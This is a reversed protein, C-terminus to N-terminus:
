YFGYFSGVIYICVAPFSFTLVWLVLSRLIDLVDVYNISCWCCHQKVKKGCKYCFLTGCRCTVYNCGSVREVCHHCAPCRQWKKKEALVGVAIDSSNRLERAEECRFGAHWVAQCSFCFLKKCKPCKSRKVTGGCENLILVSCDGYPCYCRDIELVASECLLECWKDFVQSSIFPRCSVDDLYNDCNLAPCIIRSVGYDLKADIYKTICDLCYPHACKKQNKFLKNSSVPEVCIECTIITVSETIIEEPSCEESEKCRRQAFNDRATFKRLFFGM